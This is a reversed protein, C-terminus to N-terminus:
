VIFVPQPANVGVNVIQEIDYQLFSFYALASLADTNNTGDNDFLEAVLTPQAGSSNSFVEGFSQDQPIGWTQSAGAITGSSSVGLSELPVTLTNVAAAFQFIAKGLLDFNDVDISVGSFFNILFQDVRYAYNAPLAISYSVTNTNGALKLAVQTNDAFVIRARPYINNDGRPLGAFSTIEATPTITQSVVAM